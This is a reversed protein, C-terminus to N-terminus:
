IYSTGSSSSSSPNQHVPPMADDSSEDNSSADNLNANNLNANNLNSENSSADSEPLIPLIDLSAHNVGPPVTTVEDEKPGYIKEAIADKAAFGGDIVAAALKDFYDRLAFGLVIVAGAGVVPMGCQLAIPASMLCTFRGVFESWGKRTSVMAKLNDGIVALNGQKALHAMRIAENTNALQKGFHKASKTDSQANAQRIAAELDNKSCNLVDLHLEWANSDMSPKYSDPDLGARILQVSLVALAGAATNGAFDKAAFGIWKDAHQTAPGIAYQPLLFWGMPLGESVLHKALTKAKEGAGLSSESGVTLMEHFDNVYQADFNGSAILPVYTRTQARDVAAGIAAYALGGGVMFGMAALSYPLSLLVAGTAAAKLLHNAGLPPITKALTNMHTKFAAEAALTANSKPANKAHNQPVDSSDESTIPICCNAGSNALDEATPGAPAANENEAETGKFCNVFTDYVKSPNGSTSLM